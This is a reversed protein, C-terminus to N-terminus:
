SRSHSVWSSLALLCEVGWFIVLLCSSPLTTSATDGGDMKSQTTIATSSLIRKLIPYCVCAFYQSNCLLLNSPLFFFYAVSALINFRCCPKYSWFCTCKGSACGMQHLVVRRPSCLNVHRNYRAQGWTYNLPAAGFM